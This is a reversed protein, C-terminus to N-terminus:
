KGPTTDQGESHEGSPLRTQAVSTPLPLAASRKVAHTGLYSLLLSTIFFGIALLSTIKLLFSGSGQSGFVTQSAGSGFAAGIDAGKGHQMLVLAILSVAILIHLILILQQM